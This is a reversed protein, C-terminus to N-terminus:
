CISVLNARSCPRLGFMFLSLDPRTCSGVRICLSPLLCRICPWQGSKAFMLGVVLSGLGRSSKCPQVLMIFLYGESFMPLGHKRPRRGLRWIWHM